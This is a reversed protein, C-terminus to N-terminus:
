SSFGPKMSAMQLHWISTLGLKPICFSRFRQQEQHIPKEQVRVMDKNSPVRSLFDLLENNDVYHPNRLKKSFKNIAWIIIILRIPVLYLLLTAIALVIM